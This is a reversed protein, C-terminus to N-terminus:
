KYPDFHVMSFTFAKYANREQHSNQEDFTQNILPLSKMNNDLRQYNIFNAFREINDSNHQILVIHSKSRKHNARGQETLEIQIFRYQHDQEESLEERAYLLDVKQDEGYNMNCAILQKIDQLICLPQIYFIEKFM